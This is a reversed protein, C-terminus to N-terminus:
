SQQALYNTTIYRYDKLKKPYEEAHMRVNVTHNHIRRKTSGLGGGDKM